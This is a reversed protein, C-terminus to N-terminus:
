TTKGIIWDVSASILSFIKCRHTIQVDHGELPQVHLVGRQRLDGSKTGRLPQGLPPPFGLGGGVLVARVLADGPRLADDQM